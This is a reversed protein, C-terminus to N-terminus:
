VKRRLFIFIGLGIVAAVAIVAVIIVTGVGDSDEPDPDQEPPVGGGSSIVQWELVADGNQNFEKLATGKLETGTATYVTLIYNQRDSKFSIDDHCDGFAFKDIDLRDAYNNM